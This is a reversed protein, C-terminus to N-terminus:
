FTLYQSVTTLTKRVEVVTTREVV